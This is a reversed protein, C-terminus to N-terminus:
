FAAATNPGGRTGPGFADGKPRDDPAPTMELSGSPLMRAPLVRGATDIEGLSQKGPASAVSVTQPATPHTGQQRGMELQVSTFHDERLAEFKRETRTKGAFYGLCCMVVAGVVGVILAIQVPLPAMYDGNSKKSSESAGLSNALTGGSLRLVFGDDDGANPGFPEGGETTGAVYFDGIADDAVITMAEDDGDGGLQTRVIESGDSANLLVAVVDRGGFSSGSFGGDSDTWGAVAVRAGYSGQSSSVAVGQAVDDDDSGIQASWLTAGSGGDLKAVIIDKGGFAVSSPTDQVHVTVKMPVTNDCHYQCAFFLDQGAHEYTISFETWTSAGSVRFANSETEFNCADYDAKSRMEYVSGHITGDYEFRLKTCPATYVDQYVVGDEWTASGTAVNVNVVEFITCVSGSVAHAAAFPAFVAFTRWMVRNDSDARLSPSSASSESVIVRAM